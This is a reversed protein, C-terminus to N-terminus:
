EDEEDWIRTRRVKAARSPAAEGPPMPASPQGGDLHERRAGFFILVFGVPAALWWQLAYALNRWRGVGGSPRHAPIRASPDEIRIPSWGAFWKERLDASPSGGGGAEGPASALAREDAHLVKM